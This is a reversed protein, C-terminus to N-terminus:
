DASAVVLDRRRSVGALVVSAVPVLVLGFAEPAHLTWLTMGSFLCWGVPVFWLWWPARRTVLLWGLTALATPDPVLGFVESQGWPRGSVPALLPYLLAAFLFLGLGARRRVTSETEEEREVRVVGWGALAIAQAAFAVALWGGGTHITAYRGWFYTGAVVLWGAALVGVAIRATQPGPRRWLLSLVVAGALLAAIHAPWLAANHREFLRYYTRATFMVFNAPAYTWWESM